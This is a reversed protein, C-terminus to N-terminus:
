KFILRGSHERKDPHKVSYFYEVYCSLFHRLEKRHVLDDIMGNEKLKDTCVIEREVPINAGLVVRPGAFAALSGREGIMIDGQTVYSAYAGGTMPDSIVSIFSVGKKKLELLAMNMKAMQALALPGEYMRAGGSSCISILPIEEKSALDVARRFKEGFVAGMTGGIYDIDSVALVVERGEITAKGTVLSEGSFAKEQMAKLVDSYKVDGIDLDFYREKGLLRELTLGSDTEEFSDEDCIRSLQEEAGLYDGKGCHPCAYHNERFEELSIPGCGGAARFKMEETNWKIYCEADGDKIDKEELHQRRLEAVFPDGINVLEVSKIEDNERRIRKLSRKMFSKVPNEFKGYNLVKDKRSKVLKKVTGDTIRKKGTKKDEDSWKDLTEVLTERISLITEDYNNHAGGEPELIVDDIMGVEQLHEVGPQLIDLADEVLDELKEGAKIRKDFIIRSCSEPSIVSYLANELMFSRDAVQMALAGGSGGEGLVYSITPTEIECYRRICDSIRYSQGELESSMSPDGGLTDIFSIVPLNHSEAENLIELVFKYGLATMMGTAKNESRHKEQGLVICEVGDVYGKAAILSPDPNEPYYLVNEFIGEIVDSSRIRDNHRILDYREKLPLM